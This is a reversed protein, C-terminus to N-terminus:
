FCVIEIYEFMRRNECIKTYGSACGTGNIQNKNNLSATLQEPKMTNVYRVVRADHGKHRLSLYSTRATAWATLRRDALPCNPNLEMHTKHSDFPCQPLNEGLGETEGALEWEVLHEMSVEWGSSTCYALLQRRALRAWHWEMERSYRPVQRHRSWDHYGTEPGLISLLVERIHLLARVECSESGMCKREKLGSRLAPLEIVNNSAFAHMEKSPEWYMNPDVETSKM